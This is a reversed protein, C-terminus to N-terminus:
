NFSLKYDKYKGKISYVEIKESKITIKPSNLTFTTSLDKIYLKGEGNIYGRAIKDTQLLYLIKTLHLNKGTYSLVDDEYIADLKGGLSSTTASIRLNDKSSYINGSAVIPGQLFLDLKKTYHYMNPSELTYKAKLLSKDGLYSIDSIKLNANTLNADGSADLKNDKYIGSLKIFATDVNPVDLVTTLSFKGSESEFDINFDQLSTNTDSDFASAQVNLYLNEKYILNITASINLESTYNVQFTSPHFNLLKVKLKNKEKEVFAEMTLPFFTFSKIEVKKKLSDLLYNEITYITLPKLLFLFFVTSFLIFIYFTHLLKSM